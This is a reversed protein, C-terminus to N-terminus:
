IIGAYAIKIHFNMRFQRDNYRDNFRNKHFLPDSELLRQEWFSFRRSNTQSQFLFVIDRSDLYFVIDELDNSTTANHIYLATYDNTIQDMIECFMDFTPIIGAYNDYLCRRNRLNTERLIFTGDINTRIVPKIDM